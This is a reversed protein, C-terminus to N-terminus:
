ILDGFFDTGEIIIPLDEYLSECAMVGGSATKLSLEIKSTPELGLKMAFTISVFSNTTGSDFLVYAPISKVYFIGSVVDRAEAQAQNM